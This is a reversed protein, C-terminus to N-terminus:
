TLREGRIGFTLFPELYVEVRFLRMTDEKENVVAPTCLFVDCNQVVLQMGDTDSEVQIQIDLNLSLYEANPLYETSEL